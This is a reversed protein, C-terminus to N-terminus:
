VIDLELHRHFDKRHRYLYLVILLNVAFFVFGHFTFHGYLARVELPIWMGTLVITFWPAWTYGLWLCVAEAALLVAALFCAAVIASFHLEFGHSLDRLVHATVALRPYGEAWDAARLLFRTSPERRALVLAIGAAFFLAAKFFKFAIIALLLPRRRVSQRAM